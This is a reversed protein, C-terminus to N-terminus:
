GWLIAKIAELFAKVRGSGNLQRSLLYRSKFQHYLGHAQTPEKIM